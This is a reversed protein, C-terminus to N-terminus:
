EEEEADEDDDKHRRRCGGRNTIEIEKERDRVVVARHRQADRSGRQPDGKSDRQL